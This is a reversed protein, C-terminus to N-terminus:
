RGPAASFLPTLGIVIVAGGGALAVQPGHGPPFHACDQPHLTQGELHAEGERLIVLAEPWPLPMPGDAAREHVEAAIRGRRLMLNLDRVPGATLRGSVAREGPFAASDGPAMPHASVGELVLGRGQMLILVRDVGPLASFPGDTTIDAMSLRWDFADFGAGRPMVAVERTIGGGNKWPVPVLESARIIRM